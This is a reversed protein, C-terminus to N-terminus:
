PLWAIANTVEFGGGVSRVVAQFHDAAEIGSAMSSLDAPIAFTIRGLADLLAPPAARVAAQRDICLGTGPASQLVPNPSRFLIAVSGPAGARIEAAVRRSYFYPGNLSAAEYVRLRSAGTGDCTTRGALVCYDEDIVPGPNPPAEAVRVRLSSRAFVRDGDFAVLGSSGKIRRAVRLAGSSDPELVFDFMRGQDWATGAARGNSIRLEPVSVVGFLAQLDTRSQLTWVGATSRSYVDLNRGVVPFAAAQEVWIMGADVQISTTRWGVSPGELLATQRWDGSADPECVAVRHTEGGWDGSVVAAVNGDLSVDAPYDFYPTRIGVIPVTDILTWVGVGGTNRKEVVYLALPSLINGGSLAVVRDDDVDTLSGLSLSNYSPLQISTSAWGGTSREHVELLNLGGGSSFSALQHTVTGGSVSLHRIRWFPEWHPPQIFSEYQFEISTASPARFLEIRPPEPDTGTSAVAATRGNVAFALGGPPRQLMDITSGVCQASAASVTASLIAGGCWAISRFKM